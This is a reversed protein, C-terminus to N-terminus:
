IRRTLPLNINDRATAAVDTDKKAQSAAAEAEDLLWLNANRRGDSRFIESYKTLIMSRDRSPFNEVQEIIWERDDPDHNINKLQRTNYDIYKNHYQNKNDTNILIDITKEVLSNANHEEIIKEMWAIALEYYESKIWERRCIIYDDPDFELLEGCVQLLAEFRLEDRYNKEEPDITKSEGSDQNSRESNRRAQSTVKRIADLRQKLSSM